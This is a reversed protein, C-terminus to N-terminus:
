GIDENNRTTSFKNFMDYVSKQGVPVGVGGGGTTTTKYKDLGNRRVSSSSSMVTSPLSFRAEPLKKGAKISEIVRGLWGLVILLELKESINAVLSPSPRVM